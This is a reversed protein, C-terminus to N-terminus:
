KKLKDLLENLSFTKGSKLLKLKTKSIHLGVTLYDSMFILEAMSKEFEKLIPKPLKKHIPKLSAELVTKAENINNLMKTYFKIEQKNLKEYPLMKALEPSLKTM